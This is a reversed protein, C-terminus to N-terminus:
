LLSFILMNKLLNIKKGSTTSKPKTTTMAAEKPLTVCDPLQILEVKVSTHSVTKLQCVQDLVVYGALDEGEVAEFLVRGKTPVQGIQWGPNDSPLVRWVYEEGGEPGTKVVLEQIGAEAIAYSFTICHKEDSRAEVSVLSTRSAPM